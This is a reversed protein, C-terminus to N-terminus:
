VTDAAESTNRATSPASPALAPPAGTTRAVTRTVKQPTSAMATVAPIPLKTPFATHGRGRHCLFDAGSGAATARRILPRDTGGAGTRRLESVECCAAVPGSFAQPLRRCGM